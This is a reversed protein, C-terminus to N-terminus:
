FSFRVGIFVADDADKAEYRNTEFRMETYRYGLLVAANKMFHGYVTVNGDLYRDTDAFSLVSPAITFGTSVSVPWQTYDKRFDYEGLAMFGLAYASFDAYDFDSRGMVGKLGLGLTLAPSLVSERLSFNINGVWYDNKSYLLGAGAFLDAQYQYVQGEIKGELDSSNVNLECKLM